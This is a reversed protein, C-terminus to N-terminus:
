SENAEGILFDDREDSREDDRGCVNSILDSIERRAARPRNGAHLGADQRCGPTDKGDGYWGYKRIDLGSSMRVFAKM